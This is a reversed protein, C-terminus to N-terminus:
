REIVRIDVSMGYYGNSEGLWRFMFDGMDTRFNYFTFEVCENPECVDESASIVTAGEWDIPRGEFDELRVHECCAQDHWFEIIFDSCTIHVIKSGRHIGSVSEVTQGVLRALALKNQTESVKNQTESM